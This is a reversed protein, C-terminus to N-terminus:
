VLQPYRKAIPLGLVCLIIQIGFDREFEFAAIRLIVNNEFIADLGYQNLVALFDHATWNGIHRLQFAQQSQKEGILTWFNGIKALRDFLKFNVQWRYKFSQPGHDFLSM